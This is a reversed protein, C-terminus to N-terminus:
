LFRRYFVFSLLMLFSGLFLYSLIGSGGSDPLSWGTKSNEVKVETLGLLDHEVEVKIPKKLLRYSATEGQENLYTPAKTEQLYYVGPNLGTVKIQGQKNTKLKSLDREAHDGEVEIVNSKEVIRKNEDLLKFEAKDLVEGTKADVKTILVGGEKAQVYVPPTKILEKAYDSTYLLEAINPIKGEEYDAPDTEADLKTPLIIKLKKKGHLETFHTVNLEFVNQKVQYEVANTKENDVEVKINEQDIMLNKDLKDSVKFVNYFKIDEPLDVEIEYTYSEDRNILIESQENVTKTIKPQGKKINTVEQYYTKESRDQELDLQYVKDEKVYGDPAKTEVLTYTGLLLQDFVAKGEKDTQVTKVLNNESDLLDFEAGSLAQSTFEDKKLVELKALKEAELTVTNSPKKKQNNLQVFATNEITEFDESDKVKAEINLSFKRGKLLDLDKRTLNLTVNNGKIEAKFDLEKKDVYSKASFVELKEDLTDSLKLTEYKYLDDPVELDLTYNVRDGQKVKLSTEGNVKKTIDPTEPVFIRNSVKNKSWDYVKGGDSSIAFANYAYYDNSQWNEPSKMPLFVQVHEAPKVEEGKNLVVKIATVQSYDVVAKQWNGEEVVTKPLSSKPFETLYYATFGKPVEVPGELTNKIKSGQNNYVEDTLPNIKDRVRLEDYIILDKLPSTTNNFVDLKYNFLQGPALTRTAGWEKNENDNIYKTNLVEKVSNYTYTIGSKLIRDDTKGNNNLDWKDLASTNSSIPIQEGDYAVYVENDRHMTSLSNVRAAVVIDIWDFEPPAFNGYMGKFENQLDQIERKGFNFVYATRGSGQFNEVIDYKYSPFKKSLNGNRGYIVQDYPIPDLGLPLLDIVRFNDLERAKDVQDTHIRLVFSAISGDTHITTSNTMQKRIRLSEDIHTLRFSDGSTGKVLPLREGQPTEFAAEFSAYNFLMNKELNNKDFSVSQYDPIISTVEFFKTNMNAPLENLEVRYGLANDGLDYVGNKGKVEEKKGSMDTYKYVVKINDKLVAEDFSIRIFQMREDLALKGEHLYDEFVINKMTNRTPNRVALYWNHESRKDSITNAIEKRKQGEASAKSLKSGSRKSFIGGGLVSDLMFTVKDTKVKSPEVESKNQQHFEIQAENTHYTEVKVGPFSLNLELNEVKSIFWENYNNPNLGNQHTAPAKLEYTVTKKDASLKWGPNLAPDFKAEAPLTDTIVLKDYNRYFYMADLQGLSFTFPIISEEGEVFKKDQDIPGGYISQGQSPNGDIEKFFNFERYITKFEVKDTESEVLVQDKDDIFYTKIETKFGEPVIGRQYSFTIPFEFSMGGTLSKFPIKIFTKGDEEYVEHKGASAPTTVTLSSKSLYTNNIEVLISHDKLEVGVGSINVKTDLTFNQYTYLNQASGRHDLIVRAENSKAASSQNNEKSPKIEDKINERTGEVEESELQGTGEALVSVPYSVHPLLLIFILILAVIKKGKM